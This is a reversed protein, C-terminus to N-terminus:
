SSRDFTARTTAPELVLAALAIGVALSITFVAQLASVRAVIVGDIMLLAAFLLDVLGAARSARARERALGAPNVYETFVLHGRLVGGITAVAGLAIFLAVTAPMEIRDKIQWAVVSAAIYLAIITLQHTRWWVARSRGTSMIRHEDLAAAIEQASAFREDPSQRLCQAVVAGIVPVARPAGTAFPHVGFAYESMLVGFAYVDARADGREGALQEPAIYGPTGLLIGARTGFTPEARQAPDKSRALGFDLIKLRGDGARMVNEPKLDRHAIGAAHAAALASALQRATGVVEDQSPVRGQRIEDRLTHGDIFETAIFLSGGFDELAHVTCIGPHTLAAAARAEHRLRERQVPDRMLHPALAKLAVTRGLRVDTALYVRGMGGRGLERLITYSGVVAGSPLADDEDLLGPLVEAVPQALFAGARSHNTLLSLVEDRVAPDDSAESAIFEPLSAPDRDVSAEFLSRVRRWQASNLTM